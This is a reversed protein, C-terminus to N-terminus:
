KPTFYGKRAQVLLQKDTAKLEIKHYKDPRSDPPNYGIQYQLRLDTAIAAYIEELTMQPSVTFVRGGTEASMHDLVDKRGGGNSYYVSYIMIDARQAEAIARSESFQSGNDEGDTLIVM